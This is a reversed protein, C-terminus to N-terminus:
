PARLTDCVATRYFARYNRLDEPPIDFYASDVSLRARRAQALALAGLRLMEVSLPAMALAEPGKYQGVVVADFHIKLSDDLVLTLDPPASRRLIRATASSRVMFNLEPEPYSTPALGERPLIAFMRLPGPGVGRSSLEVSDGNLQYIASVSGSEHMKGMLSDALACSHVSVPRPSTWQGYCPRTIVLSTLACATLLRM